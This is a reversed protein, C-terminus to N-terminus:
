DIASSVRSDFSKLENIIYRLESMERESISFSFVTLFEVWKIDQM